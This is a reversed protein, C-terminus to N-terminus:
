LHTTCPPLRFNGKRGGVFRAYMDGYNQLERPMEVLIGGINASDLWNPQAFSPASCLCYNFEFQGLEVLYDICDLTPKVRESVFEFSIVNVPQSLGKLVQLEAGEVDIKCFAPKGYKEILDDLTTTEVSVRGSWKHRSFRGSRRVATIWDESVTALTNSRDTFLTMVGKTEPLARNEVYVSDNKFRRRLIRRCSEQPEVAVVAAGLELFLQTKEGVNAGVDFCLDGKKIFQAYFDLNAAFDRDRSAGRLKSQLKRWSRRYRCYERLKCFM